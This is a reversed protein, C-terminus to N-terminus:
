GKVRVRIVDLTNERTLPLDALRGRVNQLCFITGDAVWEGTQMKGSAGTHSVLPGDPGGLRVEVYEAAASAWELDVWALGPSRFSSPAPNPSAIIFGVPEARELRVHSRTQVAADLWHWRVEAMLRELLLQLRFLFPFRHRLRQTLKRLFADLDPGQVELARLLFKRANAFDCANEYEVAAYHSRERKAREISDHHAEGLMEELREYFDVLEAWHRARSLSTSNRGAYQRHASMVRDIYGIPGLKSAMLGIFWDAQVLMQPWERLQSTVRPRVMIASMQIMGNELLDETAVSEGSLLGHVITRSEFDWGEYEIKCNHFCLLYDPRADLFDAQQQLKGFDTWYDDGDLTAIYEGRCMELGLLFNELGKDGSNKERYSLRVRGPYRAAFEEIISRTGDTSADDCIVVEVAFTTEQVLVSELAARIYREHNYTTVLVSVKPKLEAEM